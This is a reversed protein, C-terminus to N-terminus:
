IKRRPHFHWAYSFRRAFPCAPVAGNVNRSTYKTLVSRFFRVRETEARTIEMFHLRGAMEDREDDPSEVRRDGTTTGDRMSTM